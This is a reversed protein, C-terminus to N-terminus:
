GASSQRFPAPPAGAPSCVMILSRKLSTSSPAMARTVSQWPASPLVTAGGSIRASPAAIRAAPVAAEHLNTTTVPSPASKQRPRRTTGPTARGAWARAKRSFTASAISPTYSSKRWQGTGTSVATCPCAFPKPQAKAACLSMVMASGAARKLRGSISVLRGGVRAMEAQRGRM